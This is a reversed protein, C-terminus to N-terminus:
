VADMETAYPMAEKPGQASLSCGCNSIDRKSLISDSYTGYKQEPILFNNRGTVLM